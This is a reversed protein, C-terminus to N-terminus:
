PAIACALNNNNGHDDGDYSVITSAHAREAPELPRPVYRPPDFPRLPEASPQARAGGLVASPQARADGLVARSSLPPRQIAAAASSLDAGGGARASAPSEFRALRAARVAEAAHRPGVPARQSDVRAFSVAGAAATPRSTGRAPGAAVGLPCAALPRWTANADALPPPRPGPAQLSARPRSSATSAPMKGGLRRGAPGTATFAVNSSTGQQQQALLRAREEAMPTIVTYGQRPLSRNSTNAM